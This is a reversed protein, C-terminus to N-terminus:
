FVQLYAKGIGTQELIERHVCKRSVYGPLKQLNPCLNKAIYANFHPKELFLEILFLRKWIFFFFKTFIKMRAYLKLDFLIGTAKLM